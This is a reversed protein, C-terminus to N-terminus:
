TRRHMGHAAFHPLRQRSLERRLERNLVRLYTGKAGLSRAEIVSASALKRLANVVISRTIGAQDAIRSTVLLGEDGELADLLRHVAVAESYSLSRVAIRARQREEAQGGEESVAAGVVLGAGLAAVQGVVLDEEDFPARPRIMLLTGLRRGAVRVPLVASHSVGVVADAEPGAIPADIRLFAAALHDPLTGAELAQADLPHPSVGPSLAVAMLRGRRGTLFTAGPGVLLLVTEVVAALPTRLGDEQFLAVIAEVKPRLM